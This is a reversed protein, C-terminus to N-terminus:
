IVIYEKFLRDKVLLLTRIKHEIMADKKIDFAL